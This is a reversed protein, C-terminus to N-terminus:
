QRVRSAEVWIARAEARVLARDLGLQDAVEDAVQEPSWLPRAAIGEAERLVAEVPVGFEAAVEEAVRRVALADPRSRQWRIELAKLRRAVDSM